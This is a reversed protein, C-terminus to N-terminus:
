WGLIVAVYHRTETPLYAYWNARGLRIARQVAGPGANYAALAMAYNGGFSANLQAMLRAAGYLSSTVNWPNVGMLKATSPMFQAIGEAGAPSYARPNFGSEQQIQRLFYTPNLGAWRAAQYAITRYSTANTSYAVTMMDNPALVTQWTTDPAQLSTSAVIATDHQNSRASTQGAQLGFIGGLLLTGATASGAFALAIRTRLNSKRVHSSATPQINTNKKM